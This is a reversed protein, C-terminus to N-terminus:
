LRCAQAMVIEVVDDVQYDQKMTSSLKEGLNFYEDNVREDNVREGGAGQSFCVVGRLLWPLEEISDCLSFAFLGAVLPNDQGDFATRSDAKYGVVPKGRAWAMAAESVTGEDPVRGNLNAVLADCRHLLQYVDLAFIARSMLRGAEDPATGSHVLCEVCESLELGDRQPLFTTYGADELTSAIQEMEEREKDTFLPGACYIRKHNESM